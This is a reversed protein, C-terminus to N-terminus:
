KINELYFYKIEELGVESDYVFTQIRKTAGKFGKSDHWNDPNNVTPMRRFIVGNEDRVSENHLHSLHFERCKAKAFIEPAEIPFLGFIRKGENQGHGFAIGNVGYLRYKRDDMTDDFKINENNLYRQMISQFLGFCSQTDHNGQVYLCDIKADSSEVIRDIIRCVVRLGSKFMDRYSLSQQVPTGKTTSSMAGSVHNINFLDQGIPLVFIDVDKFKDIIKDTMANLEDEYECGRVGIHIDAYQLEVIKQGKNNKYLKVPSLPKLEKFVEKSWEIDYEQVIPKISIKSSYLTMKGDKKSYSNWINNRASILEFARSDYGHAKLLFDVNKCDEESMEILKDSTQSKDKNLEITGKYKNKISNLEENDENNDDKNEITSNKDKSESLASEFGNSFGLSFNKYIGRIYSEQFNSNLEKNIIDSCEKNTMCWKEKNSYIYYIYEERSEDQKLSRIINNSM